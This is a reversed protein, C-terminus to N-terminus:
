AKPIEFLNQISAALALDGKAKIKGTMFMMMPNGNGSVLKIFDLPSLTVALRPDREPTPSLSCTGDAIVVEYTDSGNPGGTITWHIVANTAGARDPRFSQPMRGFVTDLIRKRDPGELAEALKADPTDRVLQAFQQPEVDFNDLGKSDTM